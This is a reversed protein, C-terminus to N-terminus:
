YGLARVREPAVQSYVNWFREPTTIETLNHKGLDLLHKDKTIIYDADGDQALEVFKDDDRDDTIGRLNSTTFVREAKSFFEEILAHHEANNILRRLIKHHERETKNSVLPILDGKLCLRIIRIPFSNEDLEADILVNTDLIIRLM